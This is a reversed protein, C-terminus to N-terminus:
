SHGSNENSTGEVSETGDFNRTKFLVSNDTFQIYSVNIKNLGM